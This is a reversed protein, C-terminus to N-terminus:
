HFEFTFSMAEQEVGTLELVFHIPVALPLGASSRINPELYDVPKFRGHSIVQANAAFILLEIEPYPQIFEAQNVITASVLLANEYRPHLRVERDLLKIASLDRFRILDCQLRECFKEAWPRLQPQERLLWDRNFWVIQVLAIISLIILLSAWIYRSSYANTKEDEYDIVPPLDALLESAETAEATVNGTPQRQPPTTEDPVSIRPAQEVDIDAAAPEALVEEPQHDALPTRVPADYLRELAYFLEACHGCRVWGDATKLQTARIRFLCECSPCDTFM